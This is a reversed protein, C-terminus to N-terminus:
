QVKFWVQTTGDAGTLELGGGQAKYAYAFTEGDNMVVVLVGDSAAWRGESRENNEAYIAGAGAGHSVMSHSHMQFQGNEFFVANRESHSGTRPVTEGKRDVTFSRNFRWQGVLAPDLSRGEFRISSFVARAAPAGADVRERLGAHTLVYGFGDHIVAYAVIKISRGEVEGEYTYVAGTRQGGVAIPVPAGRRRLMGAYKAVEADLHAALEPSAPDVVGQSPSFDLSLTEVGEGGPPTLVFSGANLASTWAAPYDMKLGLPFTFTRSAGRDQPGHEQPREGSHGRSPAAAPMNPQNGVEPAEISQFVGMALPAAADVEDKLGLLTVLYMRSSKIVCYLRAAGMLGNDARGELVVIVGEGMPINMVRPQDVRRVFPMQGQIGAILEDVCKPEQAAAYPVSNVSALLMMAKPEDVGPSITVVQDVVQAKWGPPPTYHWGNPHLSRGRPASDAMAPGTSRPPDRTLSEYIRRTQAELDRVEKAHGITSVIYIRGGGMAYCLHGSFETGEENRGTLHLEIGVGLANQVPVPEGRRRLFPIQGQVAKEVEEILKPDRPAVDDAADECAVVIAVRAEVGGPVMAVTGGDEHTQWGPPREFFFGRPHKLYDAQPQAHAAGMPAGQRKLRVTEGDSVVILTDGELRATFEITQRDGDDDILTVRGRLVGDRHVARVPAKIGNIEVTGEYVEPGGALVLRVDEDRYDGAFVSVAAPRAATNGAGDSTPTAQQPVPLPQAPPHQPSPPSPPAGPTAGPLSGPDGLGKQAYSAGHAVLLGIGVCALPLASSLVRLSGMIRSRGASRTLM